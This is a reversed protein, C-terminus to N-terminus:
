GRRGASGRATGSRARGRPAPRATAAARPERRVEDAELRQEERDVADREQGLREVVGAQGQVVHEPRAVVAAPMAAQRRRLREVDGRRQPALAKAAPEEVVVAHLVVGAVRQGDSAGRLRPRRRPADGPDPRGPEAASARVAVIRRAAAGAVQRGARVNSIAVRATTSAVPTQAASGSWGNPPPESRIRGLRPRGGRRAARASGPWSRGSWGPARALDHEEDRPRVVPEDARGVRREVARGVARRGVAPLDVLQQGRDVRRDVDVQAAVVDDARVGAQPREDRRRASRRDLGRALMPHRDLRVADHPDAAALVRRVPDHGAVHDIGHEPPVRRRVRGLWVASRRSTPAASRAASSRIAVSSAVIGARRRPAIRLRGGPEDGPVPGLCRGDDREARLEVQEPREDGPRGNRSASTAQAARWSSASDSSSTRDRRIRSAWSSGSRPAAIAGRTASCGRRRARSPRSAGPARPRPTGRSRRAALVRDGGDPPGAAQRRRRRGGISQRRTMPGDDSAAHRSAHRRDAVKAVCTSRSRGRGAGRDGIAM